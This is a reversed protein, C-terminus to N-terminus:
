WRDLGVGVCGAFSCSNRSVPFLFSIFHFIPATSFLGCRASAPVITLVTKWARRLTRSCLAMDCNRTGRTQRMTRRPVETATLRSGALRTGAGGFYYLANLEDKSALSWDTRNGGTYARVQEAADGSNCMTLM